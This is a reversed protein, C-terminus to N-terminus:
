NSKDPDTGPKPLPYGATKLSELTGPLVHVTVQSGGSIPVRCLQCSLPQRNIVDHLV